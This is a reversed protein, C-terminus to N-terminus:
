FFKNKSVDNTGDHLFEGEVPDVHYGSWQNKEAHMTDFAAVTAPTSATVTADLDAKIYYGLTRLKGAEFGWCLNGDSKSAGAGASQSYV